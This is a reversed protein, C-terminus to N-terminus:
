DYRRTEKEHKARRNIESMLNYVVEADQIKVVHGTLDDLRTGDKLINIVM